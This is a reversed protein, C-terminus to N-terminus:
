EFEDLAAPSNRSSRSNGDVERRWLQLLAVYISSVQGEGDEFDCFMLARWGWLMRLWRERSVEGGEEM